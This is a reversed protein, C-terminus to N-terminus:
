SPWHEDGPTLDAASQLPPLINLDLLLTLRTIDDFTMAIRGDFKDSWTRPQQGLQNAIWNPGEMRRGLEDWVVVAILHQLYARAVDSMDGDAGIAFAARKTGFGTGGLVAAPVFRM